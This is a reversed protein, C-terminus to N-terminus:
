KVANNPVSSAPFCQDPLLTAIFVNLSNGNIITSPVQLRLLLLDHTGESVHLHAESIFIAFIKKLWLM